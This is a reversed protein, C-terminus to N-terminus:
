DKKWTWEGEWRVLLAVFWLPTPSYLPTSLGPGGGLVPIPFDGEGLWAGRVGLSFFSFLPYWGEGGAEVGYFTESRQPLPEDAWLFALYPQFQLPEPLFLARLFLARVGLGLTGPTLLLSGQLDARVGQAFFLFSDSWFTQIGLFAKYYPKLPPGGSLFLGGLAAEWGPRVFRLEGEVGYAEHTMPHPTENLDTLLSDGTQFIGQFFFELPGVYGQSTFWTSMLTTRSGKLYGNNESVREILRLCQLPKLRSCLRRIVVPALPEFVERMAGERDLLAHLGATLTLSRRRYRIMGYYAQPAGPPPTLGRLLVRYGGGELSFPSRSTLTLYIGPNDAATLRGEALIQPFWGIGIQLPPLTFRAYLDQLYYRDRYYTPLSVGDLYLMGSNFRLFGGLTHQLSAEGILSLYPVPRISTPAPYLEPDGKVREWGLESSSQIELTFGFHFAGVLCILIVEKQNLFRLVSFFNCLHLDSPLIDYPFRGDQGTESPPLPYPLPYLLRNKSGFM